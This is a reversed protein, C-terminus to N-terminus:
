SADGHRHDASSRRPRHTFFWVSLPGTEFVVREPPRGALPLLGNRDLERSAEANRVGKAQIFATRQEADLEELIFTQFEHVTTTAAAATDNDGRRVELLSVLVEERSPEERPPHTVLALKENLLQPDAKRDWDSWRCSIVITAREAHGHIAKQLNRVCRAFSKQTLRAEDVSDLFFYGPQDSAKWTTFMVEDSVDLADELSSNDLDEVPVFVAFYGVDKLKRVQQRFEETKGNGGEALVVARRAALVIEWGQEVSKGFAHAMVRQSRYESEDASVPRFSRSLPIYESM